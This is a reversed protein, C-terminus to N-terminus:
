FSVAELVASRLEFCFADISGGFAWAQVQHTSAHAEEDDEAQACQSRPALFYTEVHGSGEVSEFQHDDDFVEPLPQKM